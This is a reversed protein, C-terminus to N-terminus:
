NDEIKISFKQSMIVGPTMKGVVAYGNFRVALIHLDPSGKFTVTLGVFDEGNGTFLRDLRSLDGKRPQSLVYEVSGSSSVPAKKEGLTVTLKFNNASEILYYANTSVLRGGEEMQSYTLAIDTAAAKELASLRYLQVAVKGGDGLRNKINLTYDGDAPLRVLVTNTGATSKGIEAGGSDAVTLDASVSGKGAGDSSIVYYEGKKGSFTFKADPAAKTVEGLAIKGVELPQADQAKSHIEQTATML